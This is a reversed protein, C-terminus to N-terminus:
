VQLDEFCRVNHVWLWLMLLPPVIPQFYALMFRAADHEMFMWLYISSM